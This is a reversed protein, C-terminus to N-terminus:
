LKFDSDTPLPSVKRFKRRFTLVYVRHLLYLATKTSDQIFLLTVPLKKLVNVTGLQKM